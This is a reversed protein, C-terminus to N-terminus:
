LNGMSKDDCKAGSCESYALLFHRMCAESAGTATRFVKMLDFGRYNPGGLEFDILKIICPKQMIVNSPKFDGHGLVVKPRHQELAARAASIEATIGEIGPLGTPMLKPKRAVVEMMKDMTRWLM